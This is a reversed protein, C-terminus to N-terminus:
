RRKFLGSLAGFCLALMFLCFFYLGLPVCIGIVSVARDYVEPSMEQLAETDEAGCKQATWDLLVDCLENMGNM